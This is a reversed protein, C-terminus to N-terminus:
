LIESIVFRLNALCLKDIARQDGEAVKQTIEIEEEPTLMPLKRVEKLYHSISEESTDIFRKNVTM